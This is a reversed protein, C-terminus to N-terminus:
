DGAPHLAGCRSPRKCKKQRRFFLVVPLSQPLWSYTVAVTNPKSPLPFSLELSAHRIQSYVIRMIKILSPLSVDTRLRTLIKRNIYLVM